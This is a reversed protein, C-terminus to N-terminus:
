LTSQLLITDYKSRPLFMISLLSIGTTIFLMISCTKRGVVGLMPIPAVNSLIEIIGSLFPYVYRGVDFNQGNMAIIVLFFISHLLQINIKSM